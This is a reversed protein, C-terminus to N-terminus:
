EGEPRRRPPHDAEYRAEDERVRQYVWLFSVVSGVITGLITLFPLLGLWRDLLFGLAMFALIGGAFALGLGLSDSRAGSGSDPPHQPKMVPSFSGAQSINRLSFSTPQAEM